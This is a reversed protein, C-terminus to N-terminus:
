CGYRQKLTALDAKIQEIAPEVGKSFEKFQGRIELEINDAVKGDVIDDFHQYIVVFIDEVKEALVRGKADLSEALTVLSRDCIM